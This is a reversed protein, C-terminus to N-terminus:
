SSASAPTVWRWCDKTRRLRAERTSRRSRGSPRHSRRRWGTGQGALRDMRDLIPTLRHVLASLGFAHSQTHVSRTRAEARLEAALAEAGNLDGAIFSALGYWALGEPANIHTGGPILQEFVTEFMSVADTTRGVWACVTAMRQAADAFDAADSRDLLRRIEDTASADETYAGREALLRALTSRM